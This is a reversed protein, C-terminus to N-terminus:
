SILEKDVLSRANITVLKSHLCLFDANESHGQGCHGGERRGRPSLASVKGM